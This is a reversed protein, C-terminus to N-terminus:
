FRQIKCNLNLLLRESIQQSTKAGCYVELKWEPNSGFVFKLISPNEDRTIKGNYREVIGRAEAHEEKSYSTIVLIMIVKRGGKM